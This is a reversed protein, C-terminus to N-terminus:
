KRMLQQEINRRMIRAREVPDLRACIECAHMTPCENFSKVVVAVPRKLCFACLMRYERQRSRIHRIKNLVKLLKQIQHVM